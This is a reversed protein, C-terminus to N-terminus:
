DEEDEHECECVGDTDLYEVEPLGDIGLVETNLVALDLEVLAFDADMEAPDIGAAVANEYLDNAREKIVSIEDAMMGFLEGFAKAADIPQTNLYILKKM